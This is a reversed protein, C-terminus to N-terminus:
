FFLKWFQWGVCIRIDRLGAGDAFFRPSKNVSLKRTLWALGAISLSRKAARPSCILVFLASYKHIQRPMLGGGRDSLGTMVSGLEPCRISRLSAAAQSVSM